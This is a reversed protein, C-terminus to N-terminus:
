PKRTSRGRVYADTLRVYFPDREQPNVEVETHVLYDRFM